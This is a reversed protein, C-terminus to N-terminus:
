KDLKVAEGGARTILAYWTARDQKPSLSRVAGDCFLANPGQAHTSGSYVKRALADDGEYSPSTHVDFESGGWGGVAWGFSDLKEVFALTFALGDTIDAVKVSRALPKGDKANVLGDPTSVTMIVGLYTGREKVFDEGWPRRADGKPPLRRYSTTGLHWRMHGGGWNAGFHGKAFVAKPEPYRVDGAAVKDINPNDPCLYMNVSTGVVTHNAIYWNEVYFNYANFLPIQEAYALISTFAGQGNGHGEGLILAPPLTGWAQSYNLTALGIQKLNM